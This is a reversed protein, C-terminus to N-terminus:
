TNCERETVSLACHSNFIATSTYECSIISFVPFHADVNIIYCVHSYRATCVRLLYQEKSRPVGVQSWMAFLLPLCKQRSVSRRISASEIVPFTVDKSSWTWVFYNYVGPTSFVTSKWVPLVVANCCYLQSMYYPPFLLTWYQYLVATPTYLIVSM